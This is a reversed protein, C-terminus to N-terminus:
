AAIYVAAVLLLFFVMVTAEAVHPTYQTAASAWLEKIKALVSNM